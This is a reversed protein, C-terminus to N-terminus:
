LIVELVSSKFARICRIFKLVSSPEPLMLEEPDPDSEERGALGLGPRSPSPPGFENLIPDGMALLGPGSDSPGGRALSFM